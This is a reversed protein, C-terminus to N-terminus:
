DVQGEKIRKKTEATWEGAIKKLGELAPGAPFYELGMYGTYGTERISRFINPYALEGTDLERRGPCGAAHFHGIKSINDRINHLINGETIQQHYIDFLVRVRDSGVEEIVAFAEASSSLYYGGHDIATNLPELLLVMDTGELAEAARKAGECLARHQEERPRGTDAGVQSILRRCGLRRAAEISEKLGALYCSHGSRDVLSAFKTCIAAVELGLREKEAAIGAIDKDWWSWFEFAGIGAKKTERMGDLFDKGQYLADICVSYEM